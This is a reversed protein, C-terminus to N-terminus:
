RADQRDVLTAFGTAIILLLSLAAAVPMVKPDARRPWL